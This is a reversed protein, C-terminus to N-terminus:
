SHIIIQLSSGSQVFMLLKYRACIKMALRLPEYFIAHGRSTIIVYCDDANYEDHKVNAPTNIYAENFKSAIKLALSQKM